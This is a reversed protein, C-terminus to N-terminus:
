ARFHSIDFMALIRQCEIFSFTDIWLAQIILCDGDIVHPHKMLENIPYYCGKTFEGCDPATFTCRCGNMIKDVMILDEDIVPIEVPDDREAIELQEIIRDYSIM